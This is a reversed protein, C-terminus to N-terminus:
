WDLLRKQEAASATATTAADAELQARTASVPTPRFPLRFALRTYLAGTALLLYGNTFHRGAM